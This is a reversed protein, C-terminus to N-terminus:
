CLIGLTWLTFGVEVFVDFDQVAEAKAEISKIRERQMKLAAQVAYLVQHEIMVLM